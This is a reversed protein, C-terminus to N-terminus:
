MYFAQNFVLQRLCKMLLQLEHCPLNFGNVSFYYIFYHTNFLFLLPANFHFLTTTLHCLDSKNGLCLSVVICHPPKWCLLATDSLCHFCDNWTEACTAGHIVFFVLYILLCTAPCCLQWSSQSWASFFIEKSRMFVYYVFLQKWIIDKHYQFCILM